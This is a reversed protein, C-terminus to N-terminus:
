PRILLHDMNSCIAWQIRSSSNLGACMVTSPFPNLATQPEPCPIKSGPCHYPPGSPGVFLWKQNTPFSFQEVAQLWPAVFAAHFEEPFYVRRCPNGTTGGTEALIMEGMRGHLARPIFDSIPKSRMADVDMSGLQPIDDVSQFDRRQLGTKELIDLWYPTGSEPDFHIDLIQELM